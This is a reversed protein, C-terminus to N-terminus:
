KRESECSWQRQQFYIKQFVHSTLAVSCNDVVLVGVCQNTAVLQQVCLFSPTMM